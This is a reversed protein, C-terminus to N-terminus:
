RWAHARRHLWLAPVFGPGRQAALRPLEGSVASGRVGQCGCTNSAGLPEAAAQDACGYACPVAPSAAALRRRGLFGHGHLVVACCLVACCPAPGHTRQATGTHRPLHRSYPTYHSAFARDHTQSVPMAAGTNGPTLAARPPSAAGVPFLWARLFAPGRGLPVNAPHFRWRLTRMLPLSASSAITAHPPLTSPSPLHTSTLSM